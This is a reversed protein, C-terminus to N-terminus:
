KAIGLDQLGRRQRRKRGHGLRGRRGRCQRGHGIRRGSSVGIVESGGTAGGVSSAWDRRTVGGSCSATTMAMGVAGRGIRTSCTATAWTEACDGSAGCGARIARRGRRQIGIQDVDEQFLRVAAQRFEALQHAGPFGRGLLRLLAAQHQARQVSLPLAGGHGARHRQPLRRMFHFRQQFGGHAALAHRRVQEALEVGPVVPDERM